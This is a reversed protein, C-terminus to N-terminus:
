ARQGVNRRMWASLSDVVVTLAVYCLLTTTVSSYDFSGLQDELRRGLGGAGVVGVVVTARACVEWRYLVYALFKPWAKPLAGYLYVQMASAGQAHLNRLPRYDLNENVQSMLRGLVGMNYAGLALAGPLIGPFLVFLLLLAWIADSLARAGLLTARAVVLGVTRTLVHQRCSTDRLVGGPRAFTASAPYSLVLAGAAALTIALISMAFTDATLSFLTGVDGAAFRPPLAEALLAAAREFPRGSVIRSVDIGVYLFSAPILAALALLSKGVLPDRTGFGRGAPAIRAGSKADLSVNLRRNLVSSWADALGVVVILAYLFVWVQEYRLSQLSLLIQYGLGGAGILGLIAAARVACELRYLAYAFLYPFSLPLLGYAFAKFPSVGSNQMARLAHRPTEDIIAAFVKGTILGFPIGIALIATLPDLGFIAILLLGWVIEHVSRPVALLTRIGWWSAAAAFTFRERRRPFVLSWWVESSLVGVFLGLLVSLTTGCVAFAVTIITERGTLLLMERTLEPHVAARLFRWLIPWGGHNVLEHDFLGARFTAWAVLGVVLAISIQKSSLRAFSLRPLRATRLLSVETTM